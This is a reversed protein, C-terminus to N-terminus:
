AFVRRHRVRPRFRYTMQPQLKAYDAKAKEAVMMQVQADADPRRALVANLRKAILETLPERVKGCRHGILGYLLSMAPQQDTTVPVDTRKEDRVLTSLSQILEECAADVLLKPVKEPPPGDVLRMYEQYKRDGDEEARLALAFARDFPLPSVEALPWWRLLGRCYEWDGSASDSVAGQVIVRAKSDTLRKELAMRRDQDSGMMTEDITYSYLFAPESLIREIGSQIAQAVTRSGISTTFHEPAVWVTLKDRDHLAIKAIESGAHEASLSARSMERTVLVRGDQDQTYWHAVTRNPNWALSVWRPWWPQPAPLSAVHRAEPAENYRPGHPRFEGLFQMAASQSMKLLCQTFADVDDDHAANPFAACSEVFEASWSVDLEDPVYVNGAALLYAIAQARGVKGGEPNVAIVGPIERSLIQIVAPGNAKDEIYKARAKPYDRILARVADVTGTINLRALIRKPLIYFNPGLRGMALGAVFDSDSLDKLACDVSIAVEDFYAPMDALKYRKWWARQLIGGELPSPRQQLQCSVGYPGLSRKLRELEEPGVRAPCLLDGM